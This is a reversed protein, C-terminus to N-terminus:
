SAIAAITAVGGIVLLPLWYGMKGLKDIANQVAQKSRNWINQALQIFRFVVRKVWNFIERAVYYGALFAGIWFAGKAIAILPLAGLGNPGPLIHDGQPPQILPRAREPSTEMGPGYYWPPTNYGLWSVTNPVSWIDAQTYFDQDNHATKFPSGRRSTWSLDLDGLGELQGAQALLNVQQGDISIESAPKGDAGIITKYPMWGSIRPQDQLLMMSYFVRDVYPPNSVDAIAAGPVFELKYTDWLEAQEPPQAIWIPRDGQMPDLGKFVGIIAQQDNSVSQSTQLFAREAEKLTLRNQELESEVYYLGKSLPRNVIEIM